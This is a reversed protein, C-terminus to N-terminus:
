TALNHNQAKLRWKSNYSKLILQRKTIKKLKKSYNNCFQSLINKTIFITVFNAKFIFHLFLKGTM